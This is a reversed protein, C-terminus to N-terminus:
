KRKRNLIRAMAISIAQEIEIWFITAPTNRTLPIKEYRPQRWPQELGFGEIGSASRSPAILGREFEAIAIPVNRVTIPRSEGPFAEKYLPKYGSIGKLTQQLREATRM